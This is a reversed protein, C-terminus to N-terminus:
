ASKGDPSRVLYTVGYRTRRIPETAKVSSLYDHVARTCGDWDGYDDIIVLGSPAVRPFLNELCVLTSDYLDGDLRLVAIRDVDLTPVTEDFWGRVLTFDAGSRRMTDAAVDEAGVLRDRALLSRDKETEEVGADPLGEFSDLLYFHRGRIVEAIAGSMGGEWCGCEVVPGAVRVTQVLRLNDVFSRRPVMSRDRYKRFLSYERSYRVALRARDAAVKVDHKNV